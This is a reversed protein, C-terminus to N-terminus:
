DYTWVGAGVCVGTLAVQGSRVQAKRRDPSPVAPTILVGASLRFVLVTRLVARPPPPPPM